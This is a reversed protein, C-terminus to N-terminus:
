KIIKVVVATADDFQRSSSYTLMNQNLQQLIDEASRASHEQLFELIRKEGYLEQKENMAETFGDTLFLFIDGMRYTLTHERINETFKVDETMGLGIGAPELISCKQKQASFYFLGNHGLRFLQLTRAATNFIGFLATFFFESEFNNRILTNLRQLLLVPPMKELALARLFGQIKSMQLAASTGKGVVDGIIIGLNQQDVEFYDYYDGGVETAPSLSARVQLGPYNPIHKPLSNLQIERAIEMERELREKDAMEEYFGAREFATGLHEGFLSLLELDDNNYASESSKEATFLVAELKQGASVVPIACYIEPRIATLEPIAALDELSIPTGATIWKKNLAPAISFPRIEQVNLAGAGATPRFQGDEKVLLLTGKIRMINQIQEVSKTSISERTLYTSLIEVFNKLAQRYDYKQQFFLRDMFKQMYRIIFYLLFALGIGILLLYGKQIVLQLDVPLQSLKRMELSTGTIFFAPWDIKITPLIRIVMVLLFIFVTTLLIQTLFYFASLRLRLHIGYVRYRITTIAFVIPITCFLFTIYEIFSSTFGFYFFIFALVTFGFLTFLFIKTLRTRALYSKQRKKRFIIELLLIYVLPACVLTLSFVNYSIVLFLAAAYVIGSLIYNARIMWFRKIEAYKQEPFYLLAHSMTPIFFYMTTFCILAVGQYLRSGEQINRILPINMLILALMFMALAWLRAPGVEPKIMIFTLAMIFLMFGATLFGVQNIRLGALALNVRLDYIQGAREITYILSEGPRARNLYSQAQLATFISDGNIKILQDGVQLGAQESVGGPNIRIFVVGHKRNAYLNEDDMRSAVKNLNYWSLLLILAALLIFSIRIQNKQEFIKMNQRVFINDVHKLIIYIFYNSM